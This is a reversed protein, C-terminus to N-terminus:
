TRYDLHPQAWPQAAGYRPLRASEASLVHVQGHERNCRQSAPSDPLESHSHLPEPETPDPCPSLALLYPEHLDFACDPKYRHYYM